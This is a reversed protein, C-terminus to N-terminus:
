NQSVCRSVSRMLDDNIVLLTPLTDPMTPYAKKPSDRRGAKAIEDEWGPSKVEVFVPPAGVLFEGRKSDAGLPEWGMFAFGGTEKAFRLWAEHEDAWTVCSPFEDTGM